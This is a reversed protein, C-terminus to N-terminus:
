SGRRALYLHLQVYTQIWRSCSRKGPWATNHIDETGRPSHMSNWCPDIEAEFSRKADACCRQPAYTGPPHAREDFGGFDQRGSRTVIQVPWPAEMEAFYEAHVPGSNVHQQLTDVSWHRVPIGRVATDARQTCNTVNSGIYSYPVITGTFPFRSCRCTGNSEIVASHGVGRQPDTVTLRLSGSSRDFVDLRTRQSSVSWWLSSNVVPSARGSPTFERRAVLDLPIRPVCGATDMPMGHAASSLVLCAGLTM